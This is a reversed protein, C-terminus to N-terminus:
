RPLTVVRTAPATFTTALAAILDTITQPDEITAPVVYEEGDVIQRITKRLIKGSRTKPLRDVVTVDRFSAVPGVQERVLAILERALQQPEYGVGQKVTVFGAARQGKLEDHVGIIACEAIAPHHLLVEELSGTSLRHGAVNIVDDTRGMVFLYGDHDFYGADGTAYYGEFAALYADIFRQESGWIELLAGPALPLKIAINGEVGPETIRAGASDVIHVDFGPMPVTTSGAKAPLEEIGLPNACIMWGTETQWWHDVVPVGLGETIWQWTEPDMREGALYIAALKSLDYGKLHTLEPDERRIARLATPATSLIKAGHDALVRWFQGPDPTGVPKGEYLVTTGGAILPGYVIFSHGVVWGVDSATFMTDGPGFDYIHTMAWQLAVTYGGSDRVVGKPSGTTGSTYLIYLPDEARMQVPAAPTAASALAEWDHWRVAIGMAEARRAYEAATGPVSARERVVVHEVSSAEGALEIAREVLPLYEVTRGPELGGSTTVIVKPAADVIRVALEHAAFGGFVVSHIAGIRACALMAIVSQPIMPLYILVRDGKTVGLDRLVGAFLAVEDRLERYTFTAQTGTMASDYVLAANDGRGADVHRDLANESVNLSAGEFWRWKTPSHETLAHAPASSWQVRAAADLWFAERDRCSYDWVARYKSGITQPEQSM